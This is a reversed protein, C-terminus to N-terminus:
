LSCSLVIKLFAYDVGPESSHTPAAWRTPKGPTPESSPLSTARTLEGAGVSLFTSSSGISRLPRGRGARWGTVGPPRRGPADRRAGPGGHRCLDSCRCTRTRRGTRLGDVGPLDGRDPLGAAPRHGGCRGPVGGARAVRVPPGGALHHPLDPGTLHCARPVVSALLVADLWVAGAVVSAGRRPRNRGAGAVGGCSRRGTGGAIRRATARTFYIVAGLFALYLCDMLLIQQTTM